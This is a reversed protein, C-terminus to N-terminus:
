KTGFNGAPHGFKQLEPYSHAPLMEGHAYVNIVTGQKQQLLAHLDGMDHGSVLIAKGEVARLRVPSPAPDGFNTAHSQDLLALVQANVAGVRLATALLGQMDAEDSALKTWRKHISKIIDEDM